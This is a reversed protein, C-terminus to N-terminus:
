GALMDLPSTALNRLRLFRLLKDWQLPLPLPLNRADSASSTRRCLLVPMRPVITYARSHRHLHM